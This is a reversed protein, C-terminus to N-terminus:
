PLRPLTAALDEPTGFCYLEGVPYNRIRAGRAVLDNYLPAVYYEGGERRGGEIRAEAAAIFDSGKRFWYAGTTAWPSIVEKERVETVWGGADERAYSWRKEDSRFVLLAGDLGRAFADVVWDPDARFATDANHILLPASPDIHAKAALVTASQGATPQPVECVVPDYAAYRRLIDEKLSAFEPQASLLVFILRGAHGLPLSDVAWAYMPRGRVQILPKPTVWGAQQFRSGRGAMPIVIQLTSGPTRAARPAADQEASRKLLKERSIPLNGGDPDVQDWGTFRYANDDMYVDAHPKGFWLEDYPIGHEALWDLLTKGQRAVVLGVNSHCTAMHRATSLILYHGAQKLAQLKRAAGPLPQVEAYSQGEGRLACVVGDIDICIKM